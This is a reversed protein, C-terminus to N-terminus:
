QLTVASVTVFHFRPAKGREPLAPFHSPPVLLSGERAPWPAPPPMLDMTGRGLPLFSRGRPSKKSM